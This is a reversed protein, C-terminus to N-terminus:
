TTSSVRRVEQLSKAEPIRPSDFPGHKRTKAGKSSVSRVISQVVWRQTILGVSHVVAICKLSKVAGPVVSLRQFLYLPVTIPGCNSWQKKDATTRFPFMDLLDRNSRARQQAAPVADRQM